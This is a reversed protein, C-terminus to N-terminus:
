CTLWEPGRVPRFLGSVALERYGVKPETTLGRATVNVSIEWRTLGGLSSKM